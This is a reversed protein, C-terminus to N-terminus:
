HLLQSLLGGTVMQELSGPLEVERQASVVLLTPDGLLAKVEPHPPSIWVKDGIVTQLPFTLFAHPMWHLLQSLLLGTVMQVRSGLPEVAM